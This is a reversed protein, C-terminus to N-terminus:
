TITVYGDGANTGVNTVNTTTVFTGAYYSWGGAGSWVDTMDNRVGYTDGGRYGGGGGGGGNPCACSGGGGGFGGIGGGSNGLNAPGGAGGTGGNVFSTAGTTSNDYTKNASNNTFSAGGSGFLSASGATDTGQSFNGERIFGAYTGLEGSGGGGGAVLIPQNTSTAIFSGGGGGGAVSYTGAIGSQGVLIKLIQGQTLALTAQIIRGLGSYTGSGTAGAVIVTYTRTTPVTWLQYGQTTMNFYATNTNWNSPSPTGTMGARAQSLTPGNQGTAGGTNFTATTFTYLPAAAIAVGSSFSTSGNGSANSPVMVAYYTTSVTLSPSPTFSVASGTTATTFNYVSQATSTTTSIYVTYNTAGSAASITV